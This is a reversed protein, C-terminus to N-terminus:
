FTLASFLMKNLYLTFHILIPFSAQPLIHIYLEFKLKEKKKFLKFYYNKKPIYYTSFLMYGTGSSAICYM